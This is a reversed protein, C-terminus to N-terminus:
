PENDGVPIKLWVNVHNLSVWFLENLKKLHENQFGEAKNGWLPPPTCISPEISVWYYTNM